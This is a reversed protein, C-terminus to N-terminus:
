SVLTQTVSHPMYQPYPGSPAAEYTGPHNPTKPGSHTRLVEDVRRFVPKSWPKKARASPRRGEHRGGRPPPPSDIMKCRRGGLWDRYREAYCM